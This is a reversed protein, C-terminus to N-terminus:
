RQPADRNTCAPDTMVRGFAPHGADPAAASRTVVSCDPGAVM